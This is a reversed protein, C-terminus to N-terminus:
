RLDHRSAGGRKMRGAFKIGVGLFALLQLGPFYSRVIQWDKRHSEDGQRARRWAAGAAVACENRLVSRTKGTLRPDRLAKFHSGFAFLYRLVLPDLTDARFRRSGHNLATTASKHVRFAALSEPVFAAGHNTIVRCWFEADCLQILAENFGGLERFLSHHILSVTPEGVLNHSPEHAVLRIAQEPTIAPGSDYDAQLRQRHQLFWNRLNRPTGDEFVFERDCFGFRKGNKRCATLLKELCDPKILDDQFVFKIWEGRAQRVCNNWNAVLGFRQPNEIFRFRQDGQALQRALGLTGDSSEDDCVVVEVDAFTQERICTICAGLHKSGNYTPICISVSPANM